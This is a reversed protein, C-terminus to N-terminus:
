RLSSLGAVQARLADVSVPKTLHADFGAERAKRRDQEAGWGTLAVLRTHALAHDQRMARALEFGNMGPMGIDLVALDPHFSRAKDLAAHGDHALEIQHGDIQLIQGLMDAADVNDDVVLIRLPRQPLGAAAAGTGEGAQAPAHALIPLRLTFTSGSGTGRSAVEVTGGHKATLRKVLNLGIGLGGRALESGVHAQSFMDFLYPQAEPPIGIGNDTVSIAAQDGVRGALLAIAGHEPTYKAANTLLNGLVQVLRNADADLWVPAADVEYDFRHRRADILPTTAEIARTVIDALLVPAKKLEIKGSTVRALDLLDDVLHVLHDVQRAMIDRAKVTAPSGPPMVRMLDLSTRIPALPNRLEHALTALFEHQRLNAQALDAALDRLAEDHQRRASVDTFLLAAQRSGAGGLRAVSIDYWAGLANSYDTIHAPEGSRVVEGYKNVWDLNPQAVVERLTKGVVDRLGTVRELAPNVELFRYDVAQDQADFELEIVAFGENISSFLARYREERIRLEEQSAKLPTVDIAVGPFWLPKQHCDLELKGRSHIHRVHDGPLLVRFSASFPKGTEITHQVCAQVEALDDPHVAGFFVCPAVGDEGQFPVGFLQAMNRDAYILDRTLDYNWTGINGASLTAELRQRADRLRANAVKQDHIDTNTGMWRLIKRSARDVVPEGSCLVWRYEGSRHRFRYEISMASGSELASTWAALAADRDDPHLLEIWGHELLVDRTQGTFDLMRDNFYIARGDPAASWVMHPTANIMALLTAESERLGFAGSADNLIMAFGALKGDPLYLATTVADVFVRGGDKRGYWRTGSARGASRARELSKGPAGGDVDEPTFLAAVPKGAIEEPTWGFLAQAGPSWDVIDGEPNLSVWAFGREQGFILQLRQEVPLQDFRSM